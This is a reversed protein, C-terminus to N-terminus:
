RRRSRRPRTSPRSGWVNRSRIRSLVLRWPFRRCMVSAPKAPRTGLTEQVIAVRMTFPVTVREATRVRASRRAREFGALEAVVEYDGEPLTLFGFDGAASTLGEQTTPGSALVRVGALAAGTQDYVAGTLEGTTQARARFPEGFVVLVIAISVIRCHMFFWRFIHL